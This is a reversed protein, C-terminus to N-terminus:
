VNEYQHRIVMARIHGSRVAIGDDPGRADITQSPLPRKEASGVRVGRDARRGAVRDERPAQGMRRAGSRQM